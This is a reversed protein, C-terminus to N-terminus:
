TIVVALRCVDLSDSNLVFPVFNAVGLIMDIQYLIVLGDIM